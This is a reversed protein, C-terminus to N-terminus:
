GNDPPGSNSSTSSTFNYISVKSFPSLEPNFWELVDKPLLDKHDDKENKWFKHLRKTM